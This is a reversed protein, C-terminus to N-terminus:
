SNNNDKFRRYLATALGFTLFFTGLWVFNIWPKALAQLIIWDEPEPIEDVQLIIKNSKVDIGSFTFGTNTEKSFTSIFKPTQQDIIFVPESFYSKGKSVIQLKAKAVVEYQAFEPVDTVRVLGDLIILGQSFVATDGIGLRLTNSVMENKSENPDPVSFVHVYIDENLFVKRDPHSLIGMNKNLEVEPYVVFRKNTDALSVFEVSYLTRENILGPKLIELNQSIYTNLKETDLDKTVPFKGSAMTVEKRLFTEFPLIIAFREGDSDTFAVKMASADSQIIEFDSLPLQAQKKGKYNVRYGKIFKPINKRLLVNDNKSDEPFQAGLEGPTFNVTVISDFGSSFLIGLLMMAFGIHAIAGGTLKINSNNKRILKIIIEINCFVSFLACLLLLEDAVFLIANGVLAIIYSVTGESKATAIAENFKTNFVFKWENFFLLLMICMASVVALLFPRYLSRVLSKKEIKNWWIFQGLASLLAILLGFWINWKFYFFSKKPAINVDFLKNLVPSSTFFIIQVATFLLVLIGLTIFFERSWNKIEKVPAPIEYWRDIFLISVSLVYLLLLVLLQGSLGLDTFSHVSSEGLVGSRTLFTSYLILIFTVILLFISFRLNTKGQRYAVVAHLGALGTLWPVLSANEVPDWNWYGGFNLTEYAWYGGMIIGVGLIMAAFLSWPQVPKLWNTYDRLILGSVAYAFPILTAAFGLFLTPPHIVMWYNQLLPNLGNGNEPVYNPNDSFIPADPMAERLLLFPSSGVRWDAGTYYLLYGVISLLLSSILVVSLEETIIKKTTNLYIGIVLSICCIWFFGQFIIRFNNETDGALGQVNLLLILIGILALITNFIRFPSFTNKDTKSFSLYWGALIILALFIKVVEPQIVIGLLMSTLIVQVSTIVAMVSPTFVNNFRLLVLTLICHWFIWLLFSGEQGEWFCSIMFHVPLENSSHSWVYHYEYRHFYILLFLTFIIGLVGIVHVYFATKGTKHWIKKEQEPASLSIFWAICSLLSATFALQTFGRGLLGQWGSGGSLAILLEDM